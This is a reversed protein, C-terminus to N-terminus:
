LDCQQDKNHDRKATEYDSQKKKRQPKAKSFRGGIYDSIDLTSHDFADRFSIRM